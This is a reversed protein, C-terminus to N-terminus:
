RTTPAGSVYSLYGLTGDGDWRKREVGRGDVRAGGQPTRQGGSPADPVGAHGIADRDTRGDM